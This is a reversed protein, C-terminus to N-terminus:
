QLSKSQDKSVEEKNKEIWWGGIEVTKKELFARVADRLYLKV